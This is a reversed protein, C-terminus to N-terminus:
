TETATRPPCSTWDWYSVGREPNDAYEFARAYAYYPKGTRVVEAFIEKNEGYPFLDFHNKGSFFAPDKGDAEAYARNVWIFNFEPDMYALLIHTTNVVTDLQQKSEGLAEIYDMRESIDLNIGSWSIVQGRYSLVPTGRSLITRYNGFRDRIRYQYEWPTEDRVCQKWASVTKDVDESSGRRGLRIGQM